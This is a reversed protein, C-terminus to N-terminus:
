FLEAVSAREISVNPEVCTLCVVGARCYTAFSSEKITDVSKLRADTSICTSFRDWDSAFENKQCPNTEFYLKATEAKYAINAFFGKTLAVRHASVFENM